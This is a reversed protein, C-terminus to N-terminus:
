QSPNLLRYNYNVFHFMIGGASIQVQEVPLLWNITSLSYINWVPLLIGRAFSLIHNTISLYLSRPSKSKTLTQQPAILYKPWRYINDVFQYYLNNVQIVNDSGMRRKTEKWLNYIRYKFSTYYLRVSLSHEFLLLLDKYWQTM